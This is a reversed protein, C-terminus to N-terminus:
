AKNEVKRINNQKKYQIYLVIALLSLLSFVQVKFLGSNSFEAILMVSPICGLLYFNDIRGYKSFIVTPKLLLFYVFVLGGIIGYQSISSLYGNHSDILVSIPFGYYEKLLNWKGGGIGFFPNEVIMNISTRFLLLRTILSSNDETRYAAIGSSDFDNFIYQVLDYNVLHFINYRDPSFFYYILIVGSIISINKLKIEFISYKYFVLGFMFAVISMRTGTSIAMIIPLLVWFYSMGYKRGTNVKLVLFYLGISALINGFTNVGLTGSSLSHRGTLFTFTLAEILLFILSLKLGIVITKQWDISNYDINIIFFLLLLIRIQYSGAVILGFEISDSSKIFNVLYSITLLILMILPKLYYNSTRLKFGYYRIIGFILFVEIHTIYPFISAGRETISGLYVGPFINNVNSPFGLLVFVLLIIYNEYKTSSLIMVIIFLFISFYSLIDLNDFVIQDFAITCGISAGFFLLFLIQLIIIKKM